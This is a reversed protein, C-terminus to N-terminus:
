RIWHPTTIGHAVLKSRPVKGIKRLRVATGGDFPEVSQVIWPRGDVDSRGAEAGAACRATATCSVSRCRVSRM